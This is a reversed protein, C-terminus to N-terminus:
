NKEPSTVGVQLKELVAAQRRQVDNLKTLFQVVKERELPLQSFGKIGYKESVDRILQERDSIRQKQAQRHLM